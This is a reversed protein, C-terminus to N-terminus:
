HTKELGGCVYISNMNQDNQDSCFVHFMYLHKQHLYLVTIKAVTLRDKKQKNKKKKYESM